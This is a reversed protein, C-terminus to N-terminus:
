RSPQFTSTAVEGPNTELVYKAKSRPARSEPYSAPAANRWADVIEFNDNLWLIDIPFNMDKMWFSHYGPEDFIFLLGHDAPLIPRGSLGLRREAPTDAIEVTITEGAVTVSHPTNSTSSRVNQWRWISISLAGFVLVIIVAM